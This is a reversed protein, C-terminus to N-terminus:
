NVHNNDSNGIEINNINNNTNGDFNDINEKM